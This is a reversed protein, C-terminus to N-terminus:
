GKIGTKIKIIDYVVFTLLLSLEVWSLEDSMFLGLVTKIGSYVFALGVVVLWEINKGIFNKM